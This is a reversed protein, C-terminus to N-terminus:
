VCVCWFLSVCFILEAVQQAQTYVIYHLTSRHLLVRAWTSPNSASEAILFLVSNRANCLFEYIRADGGDSLITPQM